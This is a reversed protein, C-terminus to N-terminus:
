NKRKYDTVNKLVRTISNKEKKKYHDPSRRTSCTSVCEEGVRREETRLSASTGTCRIFRPRAACAAGEGDGDGESDGDGLSTLWEDLRMLQDYDAYSGLEPILRATFPETGLM